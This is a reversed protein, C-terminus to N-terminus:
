SASNNGSWISMKQNRHIEGSRNECATFLRRAGAEIDTALRYAVMWQAVTDVVAVRNCAASTKGANGAVNILTV